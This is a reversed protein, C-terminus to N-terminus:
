IYRYFWAWESIIIQNGRSVIIRGVIQAWDELYVIEKLMINLGQCISFPVQIGRLAILIVWPSTWLMWLSGLTWVKRVMGMWWGRSITKEAEQKMALPNKERFAFILLTIMRNSWLPCFSNLLLYLVMREWWCKKRQTWLQGQRQMQLGNIKAQSFIPKLTQCEMWKQFQNRRSHLVMNSSISSIVKNSWLLRSAKLYTFVLTACLNDRPLIKRSFMVSTSPCSRCRSASM